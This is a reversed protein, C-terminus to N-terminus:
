GGRVQAMVEEAFNGVKKEIGEGVEYRTFAIVTAKANSLLKAVTIDPDKVFPQGVLSVEALFKNVRGAIMKEIIDQPKGSEAAQVRYIEKEKSIMEPSVDDPSLVLPKSAAIHM